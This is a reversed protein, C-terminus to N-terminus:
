ILLLCFWFKLHPSGFYSCYKKLFIWVLIWKINLLVDIFSVVCFFGEKICQLIGDFNFEINKQIEYTNIISEMSFIVVINGKLSNFWVTQLFDLIRWLLSIITALYPFFFFCSFLFDLIGLFFFFFDTLEYYKTLRATDNYVYVEGFVFFTTSWQTFYILCIAFLALIKLM